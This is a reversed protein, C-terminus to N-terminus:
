PRSQLGMGEPEAVMVGEPEVLVLMILKLRAAMQPM